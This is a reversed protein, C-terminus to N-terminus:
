ANIKPLRIEIRLGGMSGDVAQISGSHAKAINKCIALGLGSGGRERNRSREVRFLREFLRSRLHVPVGPATDEIHIIIKEKSYHYGLDVCGPSDTHRLSNKLLNSFLQVLRDPDASVLARSQSNFHPEMRIDKKRFQEAFRNITEELLKGADLPVKTLTMMETEAMSLEHLDNVLRILHRVEESLSEMSSQDMKRIGYQVAELEGQLISLPTRLEHSIDSLWQIQMLEYEGLTTAMRNFDDALRGLEDRTGLTIRTDFRRKGLARTAQSLKQIPALLHRALLFSILGSCLLFLGGALYFNKKQQKIFKIDLPHSLQTAKKFGLFGVTVGNNLIPRLLSPELPFRQGMVVEHNQDLLTVRSGLEGQGPSSNPGPLFLGQNKPAKPEPTQRGQDHFGPGQGRLVPPPGFSARLRRAPLPRTILGARRMIRQWALPNNQLFGWDGNEGYEAELIQDLTELQGYEMQTVYDSFNLFAYFQILGIMIGVLIMGTILFSLVFKSLLSIRMPGRFFNIFYSPLIRTVGLYGIKKEKEFQRCNKCSKEMNDECLKPLTCKVKLVVFPPVWSLWLFFM